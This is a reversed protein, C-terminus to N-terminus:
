GVNTKGKIAEALKPVSLCNIAEETSFSINFQREIAMIINLHGMSDWNDVESQTANDSIMEVDISLTEAIIQRIQEILNQNNM